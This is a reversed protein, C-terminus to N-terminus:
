TSSTTQRQLHRRNVFRESLATTASGRVRRTVGDARFTINYSLGLASVSEGRFLEEM